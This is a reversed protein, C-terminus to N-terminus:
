YPRTPESIHILSLDKDDALLQSAKEYDVPQRWDGEVYTVELGQLVGSAGWTKAFLGSELVLVRDGKSLTNSLAAEWAGHGNAAYIYPQGTTKFVAKLAALCDDTVGVLSGTYIDIAPQHM